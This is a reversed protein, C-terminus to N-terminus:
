ENNESRKSISIAYKYIFIVFLFTGINTFIIQLFYISNIFLIPYNLKILNFLSIILTIFILGISITTLIKYPLKKKLVIGLVIIAGIISQIISCINPIFNFLNINNLISIKNLIQILNIIGHIVFNIILIINLLKMNKKKAYLIILLYIITYSSFILQNLIYFITSILNGNFKINNFYNIITGCVFALCWFIIFIIATKRPKFLNEFRM